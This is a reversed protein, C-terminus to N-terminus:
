GEFDIEPLKRGMRRGAARYEKESIGLVLCIEPGKLDAAIGDMIDLILPDDCFFRRVTAVCDKAVLAAEQSPEPSRALVYENSAKGEHDERILECEYVPEEHKTTNASEAWGSSISRMAGIILGVLDVADKKWQRRGLVALMAEQLLDEWSRGLAARGIWAIRRRAYLKLRGLEVTSLAGIATAVEAATAVKGEGEVAAMRGRSARALDSGLVVRCERGGGSFTQVAWEEQNSAEWEHLAPDLSSKSLWDTDLVATRGRMLLYSGRVSRVRPALCQGPVFPPRLSVLVLSSKANGVVSAANSGPSLCHLVNINKHLGFSEFIDNEYLHRFFARNPVKDLGDAACSHLGVTFVGRKQGEDFLGLLGQRSGHSQLLCANVMPLMDVHLAGPLDLDRDGEFSALFRAIERGRGRHSTDLLPGRLREPHGLKVSGLVDELDGAGCNLRILVRVDAGQHGVGM